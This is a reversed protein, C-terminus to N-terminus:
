VGGRDSCFSWATASYDGCAGPACWGWQVLTSVDTKNDAMWIPSTTSSVLGWPNVLNPDTFKAVGPLDSVLNNVTYQASALSPALVACLGLMASLARLSKCRVPALSNQANQM